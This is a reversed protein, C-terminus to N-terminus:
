RKLLGTNPRHGTVKCFLDKIKSTVEKRTKVANVVDILRRRLFLMTEADGESDDNIWYLMTASYVAALSARKTYYNFDVSADGCAWWIDDVAKWVMQIGLPLNQPLAYFSMAKRVAEKYPSEIELRVRFATEIAPGVGMETLNMDHLKLLMQRNTYDAFHPVFDDVGGLFVRVAMSADYGADLAAQMMVEKTWGDFIVNPLAALLIEDKVKQRDIDSTM